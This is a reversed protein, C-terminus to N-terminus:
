QRECSASSGTMSVKDNCLPIKMRRVVFGATGAIAAWYGAAPEFAQVQWPTRKLPPYVLFVLRRETPEVVWDSPPGLLGTGEAKAAAERLVWLVLPAASGVATALGAFTPGDLTAARRAFALREPLTQELDVGIKQDRAVVLASASAVRSLSFDLALPSSSLVPKGGALRAFTLSSPQCRVRKAIVQRRIAHSIRYGDREEQDRFRGAETRESETAFREFELCWPRLARHELFWFSIAQSKSLSVVEVLKMCRVLTGFQHPWLM